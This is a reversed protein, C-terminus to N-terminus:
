QVIRYLDLIRRFIDEATKLDSFTINYYKPPMLGNKFIDEILSM